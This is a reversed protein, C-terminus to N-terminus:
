HLRCFITSSLTLVEDSFVLLIVLTCITASHDQRAHSATPHAIKQELFASCFPYEPLMVLM